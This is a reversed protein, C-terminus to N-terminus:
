HISIGGRSREVRMYPSRTYHNRQTGTVGSSTAEGGARTNMIWLFSINRGLGSTLIWKQLSGRHGRALTSSRLRIEFKKDHIYHWRSWKGMRQPNNKALNLRYTCLILMFSREKIWENMWTNQSFKAWWVKGVDFGYTLNIEPVMQKFGRILYIAILLGFKCEVDNTIDCFPGILCNVPM